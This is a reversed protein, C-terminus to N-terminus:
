SLYDVINDMHLLGDMEKDCEAMVMDLEHDTLGLRLSRLLEVFEM